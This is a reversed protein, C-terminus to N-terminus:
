QSRRAIVAYFRSWYARPPGVVRAGAIAGVSASQFGNRLMMRRLAPPSVLRVRGHNSEWGTLRTVAGAVRRPLLHVLPAHTFPERAQWKNAHAILVHGGPSTVRALASVAQEMQEKTTLYIFSNNAVVLDFSGDEFEELARMDSVRYDIGQLGHNESVRTALEMFEGRTDVATVQPADRQQSLYAAFAGFGAGCDLIKTGSLSTLGGLQDLYRRVTEVRGPVLESNIAITSRASDASADIGQQAYYERAVEAFADATKDTWARGSRPGREEPRSGAEGVSVSEGAEIHLVFRRKSGDPSLLEIVAGRVGATSTVRVRDEDDQEVTLEDTTHTRRWWDAVGSATWDLRGETPLRGLTAFLEELHIDPHNLVQMMGGARMHAHAARLVAEEAVDGPEMSRDFSEHHPLCLVRSPEVTGDAELKAFRHPHMHAHSIFETYDLGQRDAWLVNPAGQWRFCTPDGHASSGSVPRRVASEIARREEDAGVWLQETHLAVEHGPTAAVMRATAASGPKALHRSRWYWTANTGLAAHGNLVQEVQARTRARDFDHRVNLVWDVGEPWPLMRPRVRGARRHMADLLFMLTAELGGSRGWSIHEPGRFPEVTTQQGLFGLLSFCTATINGRRVIAPWRERTGEEIWEAVVDVDGAVSWREVDWGPLRWAEAQAEDISPGVAQWDTASDRDVPRSQPPQLKITSRESFAAVAERLGEEVVALAGVPEAESASEVGADAQLAAGPLELLIQAPGEKSRALGERTWSRAAAATVLVAAHRQWTLPRDLVDPSAVEIGLYGLKELVLPAAQAWDVRGDNKFSDRAGQRGGTVLLISATL